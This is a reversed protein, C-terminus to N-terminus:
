NDGDNSEYPRKQIPRQAAIAGLIRMDTGGAMGESGSTIETM